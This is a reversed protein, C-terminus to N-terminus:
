TDRVLERYEYRYLRIGPRWVPKHSILEYKTLWGPRNSQMVIWEPWDDPDSSDPPALQGGDAGGGFCEAITQYSM